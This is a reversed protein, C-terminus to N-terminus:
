QRRRERRVSRGSRTRSRRRRVAEEFSARPKAQIRGQARGIVVVLTFPRTVVTVRTQNATTRYLSSASDDQPRHDQSPALIPIPAEFTATAADAVPTMPIRDGFVKPNDPEPDYLLRATIGDPDIDKGGNTLVARIVRGNRTAPSPQCNPCTTAQRTAACPSRRTTMSNTLWPTEKVQPQAICIPGPHANQRLRSPDLVKQEGEYQDLLTKAETRDATWSCACCTM